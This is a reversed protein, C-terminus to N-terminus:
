EKALSIWASSGRKEHNVAFQIQQIKISNKMKRSGRWANVWVCQMEPNVECNGNNLVGGCPGNRLTKPCNMPCTMGTSSLICNGCMQCDFLFGKIQKELWTIPVDLRNKSIVQIAKLTKIIIPSLFNYTIEYGRAHKSAFLRAKYM